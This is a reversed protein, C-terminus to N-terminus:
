YPIELCEYGHKRLWKSVLHRHCFEGPYEYCILCPETGEPCMSMLEEVVADATLGSLVQENFKEAYIDNNPNREWAEVFERKPALKEYKLGTWDEPVYESIAIPFINQPLKSVNGFFSTHIKM